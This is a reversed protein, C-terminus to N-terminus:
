RSPDGILGAQRAIARHGAAVCDPPALEAQLGIVAAARRYYEALSESAVILIPKAQPGRDALEAGILLGSLYSAVDDAPLRDFLALTRASFLRHLLSGPAGSRAGAEVGREFAAERDAGTTGMLRGLITHDRAASFMEGTMYTEFATIRGDRVEVWKSHTGPLVISRPESPVTVLTGVIQTEEGRMVDPIGDAEISLGPVIAIRGLPGGDIEILAAAIERLGAPCPVYPAERWGQRSGIMGSMVIPRAGHLRAWDGLEAVLTERFAANTVSLIGAKSERRAMVAGDAGILYARFSTTGWDVGILEAEAM